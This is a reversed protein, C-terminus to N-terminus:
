LYQWRTRRSTLGSKKLNFYANEDMCLKEAETEFVKSINISMDLVSYSTVNKISDAVGYEFYYEAQYCIAKQICKQQFATLKEFGIGVIRNFTVDDIKESALTLYEDVEDSPIKTGKFDNSYYEKNVYQSM